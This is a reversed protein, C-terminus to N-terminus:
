FHATTEHAAAAMIKSLDDEPTKLGAQFMYVVQVGFDSLEGQGWQSVYPAM